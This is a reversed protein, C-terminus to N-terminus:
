HGQKLPILAEFSNNTFFNRKQHDGWKEANSGGLLFGGLCICTIEVAWWGGRMGLFFGLLYM